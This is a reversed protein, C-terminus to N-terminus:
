IYEQIMSLMSRLGKEYNKNYDPNSKLDKEALSGIGKFRYYDAYGEGSFLRNVTGDNVYDKIAFSAERNNTPLIIRKNIRKGTSDVHGYMTNNLLDQRQVYRRPGMGCFNAINETEKCSGNVFKKAENDFFLSMSRLAGNELRESKYFMTYSKGNRMIKRTLIQGLSALIEKTM